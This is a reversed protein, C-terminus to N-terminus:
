NKYSQANKLLKYNVYFVFKLNEVKLAIKKAVKM